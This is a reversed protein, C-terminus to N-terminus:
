PRGQAVGAVAPPDRPRAKRARATITGCRLM